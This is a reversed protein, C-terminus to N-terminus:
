RDYRVAEDLLNKVVRRELPTIVSSEAGTTNVFCIETAMQPPHWGCRMDPLGRRARDPNQVSCEEWASHCAEDHYATRVEKSRVFAVAFPQITYPEDSHFVPVDFTKAM